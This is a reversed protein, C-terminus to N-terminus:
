LEARPLQLIETKTVRRPLLRSLKQLGAPLKRLPQMLVRGPERLLQGRCQKRSVQGMGARLRLSRLIQDQQIERVQLSVKEPPLDQSPPKGTLLGQSPLKETRLGQSLLKETRLGQIPPKQPHLDQHLSLKQPHLDQLSLKQPHLDKKRM